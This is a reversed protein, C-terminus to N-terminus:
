IINSAEKAPGVRLRLAVAARRRGAAPETLRVSCREEPESRGEAGNVVSSRIRETVPFQGMQAPGADLFM